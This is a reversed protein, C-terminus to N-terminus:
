RAGNPDLVQPKTSFLDYARPSFWGSNGQYILVTNFQSRITIVVGMSQHMEWGETSFSRNAHVLM